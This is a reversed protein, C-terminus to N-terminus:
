SRCGLAPPIRVVGDKPAILVLKGAPDRALLRGSVRMQAPVVAYRARLETGAALQKEGFDAGFAATCTYYVRAIAENGAATDLLALRSTGPGGILAVSGGGVVRDVWDRQAPQPASFGSATGILRLRVFDSLLFFALLTLVIAFSPRPRLFAYLSALALFSASVVAVLTAHSVATLAGHAVTAFVELGFTDAVISTNVVDHFPIAAPLLAAVLAASLTVWVPVRPRLARLAAVLAVLFLPVVYILYREHIRPLSGAL